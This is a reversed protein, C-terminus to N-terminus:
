PFCSFPSGQEGWHLMSIHLAAPLLCTILHRHQVVGVVFEIIQFASAVATVASGCLVIGLAAEDQGKVAHHAGPLGGLLVEKEKAVM